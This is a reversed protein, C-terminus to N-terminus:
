RDPVPEMSTKRYPAGPENSSSWFVDKYPALGIADALMSSVGINWQPVREDLHIAYDVSVRAQTVRPIELAQLAHRPLSM